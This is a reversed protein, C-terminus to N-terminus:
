EQTEVTQINEPVNLATPENVDTVTVTLALSTSFSGDSVILNVLYTNNEDSDSPIEYDPARNFTLVGASTISFSENLNESYNSPVYRGSGVSSVWGDLEHKIENASIKKM